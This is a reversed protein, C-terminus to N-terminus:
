IVEIKRLMKKAFGRAAELDGDDPKGRNKLSYEQGLCGWEGIVNIGKERLIKKMAELHGKGSGGATGFVAGYREDAPILANLFKEMEPACKSGYNGSGVFILDCKKMRYGDGVASVDLAEGGMEQAIAKAVKRTNGGKSSYFVEVRTRQFRGEVINGM